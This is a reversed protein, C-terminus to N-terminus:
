LSVAKKNISVKTLIGGIIGSAVAIIGNFLFFIKIGVDEKWNKM